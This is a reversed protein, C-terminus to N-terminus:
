ILDSTFRWTYDKSCRFYDILIQRSINDSRSSRERKNDGVSNRWVFTCGCCDNTCNICNGNLGGCNLNLLLSLFAVKKGLFWDDLTCEVIRYGWLLLLTAVGQRPSLRLVLLTFSIKLYVSAWLGGVLQAFFFIAIPWVLCLDYLGNKKTPCLCRVFDRLSKARPRIRVRRM